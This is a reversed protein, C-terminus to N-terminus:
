RLSPCHMVKEADTVAPASFHKSEPSWHQKIFQKLVVAAMQRLGHQAQGQLLLVQHLLKGGEQLTQLM